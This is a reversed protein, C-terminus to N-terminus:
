KQSDNSMFDVFRFRQVTIEDLYVLFKSFNYSVEEVNFEEIENLTMSKEFLM